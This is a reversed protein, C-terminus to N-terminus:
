VDFVTDLFSEITFNEKVLNYACIGQLIFPAPNITFENIIKLLSLYDQFDFFRITKNNEFTSPLSGVPTSIVPVGQAMAELVVRPSGESLSPFLFLDSNRLLTNMQTRDNIRGHLIVNSSLNNLKIFDVVDSYMEGDGILHFKFNPHSKKLETWLNFFTKIGKAYRIYGIYILTLEHHVVSEKVGIFDDRSITSSIVGTANVGYKRLKFALHNGNTFVRSRRAALLTLAYDPLYGLIMFYKKLRSWKENHITADITDGVFHMITKKRFILTAMWSFPDPVRCYFLDSKNRVSKLTKYWIWIKPISNAYSSIHPLPIFKVNSLDLFSNNVISNNASRTSVLYITHFKTSLYRLYIYHTSPLYLLGDIESVSWSAVIVISKM